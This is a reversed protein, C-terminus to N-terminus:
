ENQNEKSYQWLAKDLERLSCDCRNSIKKCVELYNKWHEFDDKITYTSPLENKKQLTWWARYDMVTYDKPFCFYLIATAVRYSVGKLIGLGEIKFQENYSSFCHKTVEIVFEDNNDKTRAKVRPAKWDVIDYLIDKTIYKIERNPFLENLKNDIKEHLLTDRRPAKKDYNISWENIFSIDIM